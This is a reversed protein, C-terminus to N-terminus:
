WTSRRWTYFCVLAGSLLGVVGPIGILVLAVFPDSWGAQEMGLAVFCVAFLSAFTALSAALSAAFVAVLTVGVSTLFDIMREDPNLPLGGAERYRVYMATRVFAPLLVILLLFGLGPAIAMVGFCVATLTIGLMLTSLKFQYRGDAHAIPRNGPKVLAARSLKTGCLWCHMMPRPIVAGCHPCDGLIDPADPKVIKEDTM